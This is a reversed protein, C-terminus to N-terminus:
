LEDREGNLKLKLIDLDTYAIYVCWPKSVKTADTCSFSLYCTYKGNTDLWIADGKNDDENLQKPTGYKDSLIDRLTEYKERATVCTEHCSVFHVQYFGNSQRSEQFKFSILDWFYGGFKGETANIADKEIEAHQCKESIRDKLVELPENYFSSLELGWFKTQIQANSCICVCITFVIAIFRKMNVALYLKM